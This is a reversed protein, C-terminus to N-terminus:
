AVSGYQTTRAKAKALRLCVRRRDERLNNEEADIEDLRASLHLEQGRWYCFWFRAWLDRIMIAGLLSIGGM